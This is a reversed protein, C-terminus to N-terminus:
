PSHARVSRCLSESSESSESSEVLSDHVTPASPGACNAQASATLLRGRPRALPSLTASPNMVRNAQGRSATPPALMPNPRFVRGRSRPRHTLSVQPPWMRTPGSGFSPSAGALRSAGAAPLPVRLLLPRRAPRCAHASQVPSRAPPRAPAARQLSAPVRTRKAYSNNTDACPRTRKRPICTPVHTCAYSTCVCRSARAYVVQMHTRLHVYIRKHITMSM